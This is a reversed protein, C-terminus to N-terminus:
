KIRRTIQRAIQVGVKPQNIEDLRAQYLRSLLSLMALSHMAFAIKKETTDCCKGLAAFLNKENETYCARYLASAVVRACSLRKDDDCFQKTENYVVCFIANKRSSDSFTRSNKMCRSVRNPDTYDLHSKSRQGWVALNQAFAQEYTLTNM